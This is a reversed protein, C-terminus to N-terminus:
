KGTELWATVAARAAEHAAPEGPYSGLLGPLEEGGELTISRVEVDDPGNVWLFARFRCGLVYLGVDRFQISDYETM